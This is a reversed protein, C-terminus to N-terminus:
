TLSERCYQVCKAVEKVANTVVVYHGIDLNISLGDFLPDGGIGIVNYGLCHGRNPWGGWYYGGPLGPFNREIFVADEDESGFLDANRLELHRLGHKWSRIESKPTRSLDSQDEGILM